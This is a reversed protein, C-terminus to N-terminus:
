DRDTGDLQYKGIVSNSGDPNTGIAFTASFGALSGTGHTYTCVGTGTDNYFTCHGYAKGPRQETTTLVVDSDFRGSGPDSFVIPNSLYAISANKLLPV